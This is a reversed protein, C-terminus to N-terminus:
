IINPFTKLPKNDVVIYLKSDNNDKVIFQFGIDLENKEKLDNFQKKTLVVMKNKQLEKKLEKLKKKDQRLQEEEETEKVELDEKTPKPIPFDWTLINDNEDLSLLEEPLPEVIDIDKKELYNLIKSYM